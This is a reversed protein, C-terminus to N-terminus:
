ADSHSDNLLYQLALPASPTGLLSFTGHGNSRPASVAKRMWHPAARGCRTARGRRGRRRLDGRQREGEAAVTCKGDCSCGRRYIFIDSLGKTM